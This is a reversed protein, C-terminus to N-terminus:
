IWGAPISFHFPTSSLAVFFYKYKSVCEHININKCVFKTQLVYINYSFFIQFISMQLTRVVIHWDLGKFNLNLKTGRVILVTWHGFHKAQVNVLLLYSNLSHFIHKNCKVNCKIKLVKLQHCHLVFYM